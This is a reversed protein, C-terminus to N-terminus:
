EKGWGWGAYDVKISHIYVVVDMILLIEPEYDADIVTHKEASGLVFCPLWPPVITYHGIAQITVYATQDSRLIPM